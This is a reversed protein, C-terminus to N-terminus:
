CSPEIIEDGRLQHVPRFTHKDTMIHFGIIDIEHVHRSCKFDGDRCFCKGFAALIICDDSEATDDAAACSMIVVDAVFRCFPNGLCTHCCTHRDHESDDRCLVDLLGDLAGTCFCAVFAGIGCGAGDFHCIQHRLDPLLPNTSPYSPGPPQLLCSGPKKIRGPQQNRTAWM